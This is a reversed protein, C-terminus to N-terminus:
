EATLSAQLCASEESPDNNGYTTPATEPILRECLGELMELEGPQFLALMEAMQQDMHPDLRALLALGQETVCASSCRRDSRNRLRRVLGLVELRDVLRTVDPSREILREAIEGRTRGVEGAGRLIRLVNYQGPSIGVESLCASFRDRVCYAAVIMSLLAEERPDMVRTQKLRNRLRDGM